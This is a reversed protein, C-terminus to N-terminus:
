LVREFSKTKHNDRIRAIDHSGLGKYFAPTTEEINQKVKQKQKLLLVKLLLLFYNYGDNCRFAVAM